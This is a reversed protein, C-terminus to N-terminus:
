FGTESVLHVTRDIEVHRFVVLFIWVALKRAPDQVLKQGRGAVIQSRLVLFAIRRVERKPLFGHRFMDHTPGGRPPITEGAPMGFARGHRVLIQPLREVDVSAAHVQHERMMLRFDRLRVRSVPMLGATIPQMVIHNGDVALLHALRQAVEDGQVLEEGPIMRCQCLSVVRHRNTEEDQLRM